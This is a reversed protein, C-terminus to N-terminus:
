VLLLRLERFADRLRHDLDALGRLIVDPDPEVVRLLRVPHHAALLLASARREGSVGSAPARSGSPTPSARPAPALSGRPRCTTAGRTSARTASPYSGSGTLM